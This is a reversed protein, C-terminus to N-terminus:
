CAVALTYHMSSSTADASDIATIWWDVTGGANTAAGAPTFPGLTAAYNTSAGPATMSITGAASGAAGVVGSGQWHLVVVRMPLPGTVTASIASATSMPHLLCKGTYVLAPRQNPPESITPGADVNASVMVTTSSGLSAILVTGSFPGPPPATRDLAVTLTLSAGSALSGSVPTVSLGLGSAIATFDLPAAGDNGVIVSTSNATDGLDLTKPGGVILHSSTAVTTPPLTPAATVATFPTTTRVSTTTTATATSTTVGIGVTGSSGKTRSNLAVVGGAVLVILGALGGVLMGWRNHDDRRPTVREAPPIYATSTAATSSRAAAGAGGALFPVVATPATGLPVPGPVFGSRPEEGNLDPFGERNFAWGASAPMRTPPVDGQREFADLEAKGLTVSRLYAPAPTAPVAALLALPNPVIRRRSNCVECDDCHARVQDRFEPTLEGNWDQLLAFLDPCSRRGTRAVLLAGLSREVQAELRELHRDLQAVAVGAAGALDIGELGQRLHLDLLARDPEPLGGSAQWVFEALEARAPREDPTGSGWILDHRSGAAGADIRELISRHALSYLWAGLRAPEALRDLSSFAVLFTEQLAEGANARNRLLSLCFDHVGDAYRDYIAALANRDGARAQAVLQTDDM